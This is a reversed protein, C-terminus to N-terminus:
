ERVLPRVGDEDRVNTSSQVGDGTSPAPRAPRLLFFGASLLAAVPAWAREPPSRSIANAVAGVAFLASVISFAWRGARARVPKRLALWVLGAYLLLSAASAVRLGSPLVGRHAGGWAVAGWPAGLALACQFSAVVLLLGAVARSLLSRRIM